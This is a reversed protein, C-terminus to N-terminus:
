KLGARRTPASDHASFWNVVRKNFEEGAVAVAGCHGARPVEWLVIDEPNRFYIMESQGAPINDDALGHILLIPVTSRVVSDEPSVRVFDVHRTLRAYLFALEVAPRLLIRGVWSGTHFMQGVRVFAIERFSAFPSEAVVGCFPTIRVAQLVIAAGMSEGM